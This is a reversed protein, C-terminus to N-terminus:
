GRRALLLGVVMGVAAGIGIGAWPNDRVLKDCCQAADKTKSLMQEGSAELRGRADTLAAEARTKLSELEAKSATGSHQVLEDLTDALKKLDAKLQERTMDTQNDM